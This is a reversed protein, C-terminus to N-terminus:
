CIINLKLDVRGERLYSKDMSDFFNPDKNTTMILIVNQYIEKDIRDLFSNWNTKNTVSTPIDKHEHVTNNHIRKIIIDVEELVVILKKTPTPKTRSILKSFSDGPDTPVFSDVIMYNLEEAFFLPITSKGSGMEGYLLIVSNINTSSHEKIINVYDLQNDRVIMNFTINTKEYTFNIYEGEREWLDITKIKEQKKNLITKEVDNHEIFNHKLLFSNHAFVTLITNRNTNKNRDIYGIFGYGIILGSPESNYTYSSSHVLPLIKTKKYKSSSVCLKINFINCVILSLPQLWKLIFPSFIGILVHQYKTKIFNTDINGFLSM